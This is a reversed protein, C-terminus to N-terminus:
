LIYLVSYMVVLVWGSAVIIYKSGRNLSTQDLTMTVEHNTSEYLIKERESAPCISIREKLGDDSLYGYANLPCYASVTSPTKPPSFNLISMRLKQGFDVIFRYKLCRSQKAEISVIRAIKRGVRVDVQPDCNDRPVSTGAPRLMAMESYKNHHHHDIEKIHQKVSGIYM